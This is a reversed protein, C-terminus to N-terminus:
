QGRAWKDITLPAKQLTLRIHGLVTDDAAHRNTVAVSWLPENDIVRITKAPLLFGTGGNITVLIDIVAENNVIEIWDLPSFKRSAPFQTPVHISSIAAPATIPTEWVFYQSGERKIREIRTVVVGRQRKLNVMDLFNPM